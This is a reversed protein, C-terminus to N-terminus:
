ALRRAFITSVTVALVLVGGYFVESVWGEVGLLQLGFIGTALFYVGVWTGIPNFRGTQIAATGLYTAAFTPLLYTNIVSPNFGGLAAANIVGGFGCLVGAAVFSGFRIRNVRVGALRSVERGAGVFRMHRGLPTWNLVYAFALVLVVGYWFSVPLGAIDTLAIKSFGRSLGSVQTLNSIWLSIGILFTGMGLTVVITNVGLRVILLGNVAGAATSAAIAALCALWIDWGHMVALVPVITSALGFLGAVSLDVFEGVIITCLLAMTLFVLVSQSSFIAQFTNLTAFTQPRLLGYVICMLAWVGIIAFRAGLDAAVRSPREPVPAGTGSHADEGPQQRTVVKV